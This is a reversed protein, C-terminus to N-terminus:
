APGRGEGRGAECVTAFLWRLAAVELIGPVALGWVRGAWALGESGEVRGWPPGSVGVESGSWSKRWGSAAGQGGVAGEKGVVGEREVEEKGVVGEREVEGKRGVGM